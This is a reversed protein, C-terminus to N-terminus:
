GEDLDDKGGLVDHVIWGLWGRKRQACIVKGGFMKAYDRATKKDMRESTKGDAYEVYYRPDHQGLLSM